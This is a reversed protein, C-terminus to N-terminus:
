HGRKERVLQVHGDSHVSCPAQIHTQQRLQSILNYEHPAELLNVTERNQRKKRVTKRNRSIKKVTKRTKLNQRHRNKRDKKVTHRNKRDKKM